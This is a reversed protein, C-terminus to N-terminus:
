IKKGFKMSNSHLIVDQELIKDNLFSVKLAQKSVGQHTDTDLSLASAFDNPNIGTENM